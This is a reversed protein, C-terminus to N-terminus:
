KERKRMMQIEGTHSSFLSRSGHNAWLRQSQIKDLQFEAGGEAGDREFEQLVRPPEHLGRQLVQTQKPGTQGQCPEWYLGSDKLYEVQRRPCVLDVHHGPEM